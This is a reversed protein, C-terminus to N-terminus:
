IRRSTTQQSFLERVQGYCFEHQSEICQAGSISSERALELGSLGQASM